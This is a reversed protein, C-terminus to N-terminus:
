CLRNVSKGVHHGGGGQKTVGLSMPKLIIYWREFLLSLYVNVIVQHVAVDHIFYKRTEGEQSNGASKSSGRISM